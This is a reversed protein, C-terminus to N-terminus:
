MSTTTKGGVKLPLNNALFSLIRLITNQGATATTGENTSRRNKQQISTKGFRILDPSPHNAQNPFYIGEATRGGAPCPLHKDDSFLEKKVKRKCEDKKAQIKKKAQMKPPSAM